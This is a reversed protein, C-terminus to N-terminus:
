RDCLSDCLNKGTVVQRKYLLHSYWELIILLILLLLMMLLLLILLLLM